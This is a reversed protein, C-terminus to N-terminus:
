VVLLGFLAGRLRLGRLGCLGLDSASTRRQYFLLSGITYGSVTRSLQRLPQALRVFRCVRIRSPFFGWWLRLAALRLLSCSHLERLQSHPSEFCVVSGARDTRDRWDLSPLM